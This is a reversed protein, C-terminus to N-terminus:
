IKSRFLSLINENESKESKFQFKGKFVEEGTKRFFCEFEKLERNREHLPDMEM